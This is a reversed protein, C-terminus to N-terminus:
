HEIEVAALMEKTKTLLKEKGQLKDNIFAVQM